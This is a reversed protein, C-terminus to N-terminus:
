ARSAPGLDILIAMPTRQRGQGLPNDAFTAELVPHPVSVDSGLVNRGIDNADMVVTGVFNRKLAEPIASARIAASLQASIGDPDKPPLKASVNSPFASYVTPGDIARVNAGVLEYFLGRRGLVKGAAGAASAAVVRPLGVERIALEMTTPDGLGIGVPTRTVFRSLVKAAPRPRIEWTFWSRGQTIAIIKESIVYYWPSGEPITGAPLAAAFSEIRATAMAIVDDGRGVLGTQLPLRRWRRSDVESVLDLEKGPNPLHDPKAVEPEEEDAAPTAEDGELQEDLFERLWLELHLLPWFMSLRHNEPHAIADDFLAIVTPADVYPRAAFSDSAFIERVLEAHRRLWQEEQEVPDPSEPLHGGLADRLIQAGQGQQILASDELTALHEILSPDVFPTRHELDLADCSRAATRLAVPLPSVTLEHRLRERLDAAPAAARERSHRAVFASNLLAEIPVPPRDTLRSRAQGLLERRAGIVAGALTRLEKRRRLQRRQVAAHHPRAALVLDWGLDMALPRAQAPASRLAAHQAWTGAPAPEEQVRVLDQLDALVTEATPAPTKARRAASDTLATRLTPAFRGRFRALADPNYPRRPSRAADLLLSTLDALATITVGAADAALLHGAPLRRIGAFFTEDTDDSLGQLLYRHIVQDNPAAEVEDVDLLDRLRTAVHLRTGDASRWYHLPERGMADRALVVTGTSADTLALAYPGRLRALGETGQRAYLAAIVDTPESTDVGLQERLEALNEVEGSFQVEDRLALDGSADPALDHSGRIGSM